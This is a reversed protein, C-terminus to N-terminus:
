KRPRARVELFKGDYVLAAGQVAPGLEPFSDLVTGGRVTSFRRFLVIVDASALQDYERALDSPLANGPLFFAGVPPEIGRLVLGAGGMEGLTVTRRGAAIEMARLWEDNIDTRTWLDGTALSRKQTRPLNLDQYITRVFAISALFTLAALAPRQWDALTACAILGIPLIYGYHSTLVAADALVLAATTLVFLEVLGARRKRLDFLALAASIALWVDGAFNFALYGGLFLNLNAGPPRQFHQYGPQLQGTMRYFHIGQLPFVTRIFSGFGFVGVLIAVLVVGGAVLPALFRRIEISVNGRLGADRVTLVVLIAAYIYGMAPKSLAACLAFAFAFLWRGRLQEAFGNILFAAEMAYALNDFAVVVIPMTTLALMWTLADPRLAAIIRALGIAVILDIATVAFAYTNPTNGFVGFALKGFLLPLLGYNYGFDIEPRLGRSLLSQVALVSGTDQFAYEKFTHLLPWRIALLAAAEVAFLLFWRREAEPKM